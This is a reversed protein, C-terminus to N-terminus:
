IIVRVIMSHQCIATWTSKLGHDLDVQFSSPCPISHLWSTQFLTVIEIWRNSNLRRPSIQLLDFVVVLPLYGIEFHIRENQTEEHYPDWHDRNSRQNWLESFQPFILSFWEHSSYPLSPSPTLASHRESWWPDPDWVTNVTSAFHQCEEAVSPGSSVHQAHRDIAADSSERMSIAM